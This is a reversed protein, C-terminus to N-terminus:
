RYWESGVKFRELDAETPTTEVVNRSIVDSLGAQPQEEKRIKWPGAEDEATCDRVLKCYSLQTLRTAQTTNGKRAAPTQTSRTQQYIIQQESFNIPQAATLGALIQLVQNHRHSPIQSYLLFEHM